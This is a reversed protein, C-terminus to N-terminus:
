ASTDKTSAKKSSLYDRIQKLLIILMSVHGFAHILLGYPPVWRDNQAKILGALCWLVVRWDLRSWGMWVLLPLLIFTYHHYWMVNPSLATGLGIIIFLAEPAQKGVAFLISSALILAAIYLMLIRHTLAHHTTLFDLIPIQFGLRTSLARRLWVLKALLSQSNQDLVFQNTLWRLVSPYKIVPDLGYRLASLGLLIIVMALAITFVRWKKRALPYVFFLVPSMKTLTALALGCGSLLPSKEIWLFLMFIGFLTIVNIQGVHLLELFPAFGLCLIYWYWTQNIGYGYYRAMGYVIFMLLVINFSLYFSARLLASKVCHFAEVVFLAPPPYLYGPGIRLTRYPDHEQLADSLAREYFKFDEMLLDPIPMREVFRLETYFGLALYFFMYLGMLIGLHRSAVPTKNMLFGRARHGQHHPAPRAPGEDKEGKDVDDTEPRSVTIGQSARCRNTLRSPQRPHIPSDAM